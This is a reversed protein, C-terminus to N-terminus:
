STRSSLFLTKNNTVFARKGLQVVQYEDNESRGSNLLSAVENALTISMAPKEKRLGSNGIIKARGDIIYAASKM